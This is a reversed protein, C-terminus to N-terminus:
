HHNFSPLQQHLQPKHQILSHQQNIASLASHPVSAAPLLQPSPHLLSHYHSQDHQIIIVHTDTLQQYCNPHMTIFATVHDHQTSSHPVSAAPLLQPTLHLLSHQDHHNTMSTLLSHHCSSTTAPTYASHIRNVSRAPHHTLSPLQQYCSPHTTFSHISIM